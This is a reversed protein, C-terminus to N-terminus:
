PEAERLRHYNMRLLAQGPERVQHCCCKLLTIVAMGSPAEPSKYKSIDCQSLHTKHGLRANVQSSGGDPQAYLFPSEGPSTSRLMDM